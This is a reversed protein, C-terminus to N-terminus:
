CCVLEAPHPHGARLVPTLYPPLPPLPPVPITLNVFHSSCLSRGRCDTGAPAATTAVLICPNVFLSPPIVDGTRTEHM